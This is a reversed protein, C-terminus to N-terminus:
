GRARRIVDGTNLVVQEMARYDLASAGLWILSPGNKRLAILLVGPTHMGHEELLWDQLQEGLERARNTLPTEREFVDFGIM